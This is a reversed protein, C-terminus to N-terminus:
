ARKRRVSLLCCAGGLLVAISAPEPLAAPGGATQGYSSGLITLDTLDIDTDGDFDGEGWIAGALAGYNSGVITLDTLNVEGNVDVDGDLPTLIAKIAATGYSSFDTWGASESYSYYTRGAEAAGSEYALPYEADAAFELSVIFEAVNADADLRDALDLQHYGPLDLTTSLTTHLSAADPRGNAADWASYVRVTVAEDLNRTWLGVATLTDGAEADFRALAHSEWGSGYGFSNYPWYEQHQYVADYGEREDAPVFISAYQAAATDNYSIYCYGGDGWGSGWSNKVIWAGTGGATQVDDDWGALMVGHNTGTGGAYYYTGDNGDLYANDIYMSTHLGGYAQIANKVAARYQSTSGYDARDVKKAERLRWRGDVAAAPVYPSLDQHNQIAALPYPTLATATESVPGQGRAMYAAADQWNGAWGSYPYTYSPATDLGYNAVHWESLDAAAANADPLYGGALLGSEFAGTAAFSWCAGLASQSKVPTVLGVDRLDYRDALSTGPISLSALCALVFLHPLRRRPM